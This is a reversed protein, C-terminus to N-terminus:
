REAEGGPLPNLPPAPRPRAPEGQAGGGGFGEGAPLPSIGRDLHTFAQAGAEPPGLAAVVAARFADIGVRARAHQSAAAGIRARFSVDDHLRRLWAAAEPVSPEAWHAVIGRYADTDDVAPILTAPVLCAAGEEMFDLNGSWATAVVPKGLFMAEALPLGFGEARHLSLLVDAGRVLESMAEADLRRDIVSINAAGAVAAAFRREAEGSPTAGRTKVILRADARDGFAARFAAIAALPNKREFGSEYAFVTLVTFPGLAGPAATAARDAVRLAYPVLRIPRSFGADRIADAVFRSPVWAEHVLRFADRWAPGLVPLEWVWHAFVPRRWALRGHMGLAIQLEPPNIHCLLPGGVDGVV